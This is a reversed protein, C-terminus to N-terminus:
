DPLASASPPFGWPLATVDGPGTGAFSVEHWASDQSENLCREQIARIRDHCRLLAEVVRGDWQRDAGQALAELANGRAAEVPGLGSTTMADYSEAVALIRAVLPISDGKLGDPYGTGDYREHHHLVAPTLRAMAHLASVMRSGLIVHQRVQSLESPTLPARKRLVADPLGIKGIDHLLGTLYVDILEDDSLGVERALEVAIRAVRESHGLAFADRLDVAAALARTLGVLVEQSERHQRAARLQAGLLAAFPLLLAADTRRFRAEGARGSGSSPRSSGPAPLAPNITKNLAIL